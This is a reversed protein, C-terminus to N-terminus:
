TIPRLPAPDAVQLHSGGCVAAPHAAKSREQVLGASSAVPAAIRARPIAASIVAAPRHRPSGVAAAEAEAIAGASAVARLHATWAARASIMLRV